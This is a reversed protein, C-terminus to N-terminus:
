ETADSEPTTPPRRRSRTRKRRIPFARRYLRDMMHQVQPDKGATAMAQGQATARAIRHQEEAEVAELHRWAQHFYVVPIWHDATPYAPSVMPLGPLRAALRDVM